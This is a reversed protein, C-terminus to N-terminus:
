QQLPSWFQSLIQGVIQAWHTAAVPKRVGVQHAPATARIPLSTGGLVGASESHVTMLEFSLKLLLGAVNFCQTSALGRAM